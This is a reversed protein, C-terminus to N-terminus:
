AATPTALVREVDSRDHITFRADGFAVRVADMGMEHRWQELAPLLDQLLRDTPERPSTLRLGPGAPTEVLRGPLGRVALARALDGAARGDALQITVPKSVNEEAAVPLTAAQVTFAKVTSPLTAATRSSDPRVRVASRSERM